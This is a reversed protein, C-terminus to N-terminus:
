DNSIQKMEEKSGFSEGFRKNSELWGQALSFKGKM